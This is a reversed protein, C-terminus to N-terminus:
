LTQEKEQSGAGPYQSRSKGRTGQEMGRIGTIRGRHFGGGFGEEMEVAPSVESIEDVTIDIGLPGGAVQPDDGSTSEFLASLRVIFFCTRTGDLRRVAGFPPELLTVM